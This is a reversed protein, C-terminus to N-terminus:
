RDVPLESPRPSSSASPSPRLPRPRAATKTSASSATAPITPIDVSAAVTAVPEVASASPRATLIPIPSSEVPTPQAAVATTSRHTRALVIATLVMGSVALLALAALAFTLGRSRGRDAGAHHADRVSSVVNAGITGMSSQSTVMVEPPAPRPPLRMTQPSAQPAFAEADLTAQLENPDPASIRSGGMAVFAARGVPSSFPALLEAFAFVSPLRAPREKVLARSIAAAIGVPIEPRLERPDRPTGHLIAVHLAALTEADFPTSGTLLEYLVVGLAWVDSRPDADRTSMLQEPSMYLPSGFVEQTRTSSLEQTLKSIGFDVLKVCPEGSRRFTLFLNSPKIDRHVIGAAHAQALAECAQLVCDIAFVIPIPRHKDLHSSLDEGELLEMVMYPGGGALRGVDVVRVIHDSKILAAVKGEQLFREVIRESADARLVKIAAVQGLEVHTVALVHGMGGEGIVRDVRYKDAIISGVAPLM